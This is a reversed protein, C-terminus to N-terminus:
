SHQELICMGHQNSYMGVKNPWICVLQTLWFVCWSHQDFFVSITNTLYVGFTNTWICVLQTPGFVCWSHQDLYVNVTNTLLRVLQTPWFICWIHQDLYVGDTNCIFSKTRRGYGFVLVIQFVNLKHILCLGLHTWFVFKSLVFFSYPLCIIPFTVKDYYQKFFIQFPVFIYRM